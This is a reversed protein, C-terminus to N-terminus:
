GSPEDLSSGNALKDRSEDRLSREEGKVLQVIMTPHGKFVIELNM